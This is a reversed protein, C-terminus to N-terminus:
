MCGSKGETVADTFFIQHLNYPPYLHTFWFSSTLYARYNITHKEYFVVSIAPVTGPM